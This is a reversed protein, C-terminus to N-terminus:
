DIIEAEIPNRMGSANLFVAKVSGILVKAEVIIPARLKDDTVWVTMDEGSKFISGPVLLPSFKLCRFKRNSRDKVEEIGLYKIYLDHIKADILMRIPIKDGKKYKSFDINRAKYVMTLVDAVCDQLYLNSYEPLGDEGKIVKCKINKNEYDFWYQYQAETSGEKTIRRFYNPRFLKKNINVEFTDRVTMLKDYGNFTNGYASIFWEDGKDKVCFTVKGAKLWIFHWNYYVHYNAIEGSSFAKNEVYCQSFAFYINFLLIFFLLRLRM